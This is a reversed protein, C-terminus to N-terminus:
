SELARKVPFVDRFYYGMVFGGATGALLFVFLLIDGKDTNITATKM